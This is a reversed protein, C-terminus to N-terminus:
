LDLYVSSVIVLPLMKKGWVSMAVAGVLVPYFIGDTWNLLIFQATETSLGKMRDWLKMWGDHDRGGGQEEIM